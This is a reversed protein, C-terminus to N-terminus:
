FFQFVKRIPKLFLTFFYPHLKNIHWARRDEMNAKIRHLLSSNSIGGVRMKVLVEPLYSSDFGFKFLIRLMLEYDASTRLSTNFLGAKEYVQKRAFFTPHPPMWGYYFNSRNFMGSKWHRLIKRTNKSDVYDLDGYATQIQPNLFANAIKSLVLHDAYIDDSNLIGIIDGDALRIGKNM